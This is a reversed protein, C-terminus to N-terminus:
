KRVRSGDGYVSYCHEQLPTIDLLIFGTEDQEEAKSSTATPPVKSRGAM